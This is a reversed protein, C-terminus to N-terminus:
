KERLRGGSGAATLMGREAAFVRLREGPRGIRGFREYREASRSSAHQRGARRRRPRGGATRWFGATRSLSESSSRPRLSLAEVRRQRRRRTERRQPLRPVLVLAWGKRAHRPFAEPEKPESCRRCTKAGIAIM